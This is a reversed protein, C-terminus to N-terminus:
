PATNDRRGRERESCLAASVYPRLPRPRFAPARSRVKTVVCGRSLQIGPVVSCASVCQRPKPIKGNTLIGPRALKYEPRNLCYCKRNSCCLFRSPRNSIDKQSRLCSASYEVDRSIWSDLRQTAGFARLLAGASLGRGKAAKRTRQAISRALAHGGPCCLAKIASM